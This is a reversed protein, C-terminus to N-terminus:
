ARRGPCRGCQPSTCCLPGVIRGRSRAIFGAVRGRVAGVLRTGLRATLTPGAGVAAQLEALTETLAPLWPSGYLQAETVFAARQLTLLEGGDEPHFPTIELAM